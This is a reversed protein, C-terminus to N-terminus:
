PTLTPTSSSVGRSELHRLAADIQGSDIQIAAIRNAIWALNESETPSIEPLALRYSNSDGRSADGYLTRLEAGICFGRFINARLNLMWQATKEAEPYNGLAIEAEALYGYTMVDDPIHRHLASAREIAEAYKQRALMLAVHAKESNFTTPM